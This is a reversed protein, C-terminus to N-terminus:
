QMGGPLMIHYLFLFPASFILMIEQQVDPAIHKPRRQGGPENHRERSIPEDRPEMCPAARGKQPCLIHMQNRSDNGAAMKAIPPM